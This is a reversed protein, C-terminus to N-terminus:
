LGMPPFPSPHVAIRLFTVLQQSMLSILLFPFIESINTLHLHYTSIGVTNCYNIDVTVPTHCDTIPTENYGYSFRWGKSILSIFIYGENWEARHAQRMNWRLWEPGYSTVNIEWFPLHLRGIVNYVSLIHLMRVISLLMNSTISYYHRSHTINDCTWYLVFGREQGRRESCSKGRRFDM